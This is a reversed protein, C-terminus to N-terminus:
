FRALLARTLSFHDLPDGGDREFADLHARDVYLDLNRWSHGGKGNDAQRVLRDGFRAFPHARRQDGGPESQRGAPDGDIKCRGVQGLLATVVIQRDRKSQHGRDAGDRM